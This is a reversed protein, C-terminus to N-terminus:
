LAMVVTKLETFTLVGEQGQERGWGSQKYGGFPVTFDIGAGNVRVTGARMKKAMKHARSLDRTYIYASLGYESDNAEAAVRDLDDDDFPTMCLVPGFIEERRVKMSPDTDALITPQIFYGKEGHRAGGTVVKAGAEVGSAIYGSVRELQRDSVLPGLETDPNVGAGIKVASLRETLTEVMRDYLSRHVFTRTGAACVQGSNFVIARYVGTVATEFDADGFVVAPSKGGLELTVRKLNGACAQVLRKGVATSGTFSIKDVDPHEALAQGVEPGYGTIINIVGKPVGAELVLEGFRLTSLSTQEAPKLVMTCGAAIADAVKAVAMGLPFNWPIIMGCVGVPERVTYAHYDGPLIPSFTSGFIKTAWGASYRLKEVAGSIDRLAMSLPKGVDLTELLAFEERRSDLLDALKMLLHGRALGNLKPWEGGEFARRAAKVAADVDDRTGRAIKGIEEGNAPDVVPITEGSASAVWAGDILMTRPKAAMDPALTREATWSDTM